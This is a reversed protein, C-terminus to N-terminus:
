EAETIVTTGFNSFEWVADATIAYGEMNGGEMTVSQAYKCEFKKLMGNEDLTVVGETMVITASGPRATIAMGRGRRVPAFFAYLVLASFFAFSIINYYTIFNEM